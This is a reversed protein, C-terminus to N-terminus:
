EGHSDCDWQKSKKQASGTSMRLCCCYLQWVTVAHKFARWQTVKPIKQVCAFFTRLLGRGVKRFVAYSQSVRVGATQATKPLECEQWKHRRRCCDAVGGEGESEGGYDVKHHGSGNLFLTRLKAFARDAKEFNRWFFPRLHNPLQGKARM